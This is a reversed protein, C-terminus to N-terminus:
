RNSLEDIVQMLQEDTIQSTYEPLEIGVDEAKDILDQILYALIYYCGKPEYKDLVSYEIDSIEIPEFQLVNFHEYPSDIELKKLHLKAYMYLRYEDENLLEYFVKKVGDNTFEFDNILYHKM